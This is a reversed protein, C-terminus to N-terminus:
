SPCGFFSMLVVHSMLLSHALMTNVEFLRVCIVFQTIKTIHYSNKYFYKWYPPWLQDLIVVLCQMLDALHISYEATKTNLNRSMTRCSNFFLAKKTKSTKVYFVNPSMWSEYIKTKFTHLDNLNGNWLLFIDDVNAAFFIAATILRTLSIM